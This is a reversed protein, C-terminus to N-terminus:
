TYIELPPQLDDNDLVDMLEGLTQELPETIATSTDSIISANDDDNNGEHYERLNTILEYIHAREMPLIGDNVELDYMRHLIDSTDDMLYSHGPFWSHLDISIRIKNIIVLFFQRYPTELDAIESDVMMSDDTNIWHNINTLGRAFLDSTIRVPLNRILLRLRNEQTRSLIISTGILTIYADTIHNYIPYPM